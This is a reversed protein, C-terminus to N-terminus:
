GSIVKSSYESIMLSQAKPLFFEVKRMLFMFSLIRYFSRALDKLVRDKPSQSLSSIM